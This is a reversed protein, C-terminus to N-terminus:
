GSGALYRALSDIQRRLMKLEDRIDFIVEELKTMRAEQAVCRAEVKKINAKLGETPKANQITDWPDKQKGAAQRQKKTSPGKAPGPKRKRSTQNAKRTETQAREDTAENENPNDPDINRGMNGPRTRRGAPINDRGDLGASAKNGGKTTTRSGGNTDGVNGVTSKDAQSQPDGGALVPRAEHVKEHPPQPEPGNHDTAKPQSLGGSMQVGPEPEEPKPTQEAKPSKWTERLVRRVDQTVVGIEVPLITKQRAFQAGWSLRNVARNGFMVSLITYEAATAKRGQIKRHIKHSSPTTTARTIRADACLSKFEIRNRETWTDSDKVWIETLKAAIKSDWENVPRFAEELDSATAPM